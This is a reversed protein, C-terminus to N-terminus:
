IAQRYSKRAYYITGLNNIAEPYKPDLKMSREYYKKAVDMQMMQHYAIGVKNWIVASDQPGQKYTEVAERYMKRAMLIDARNEPSLPTLANPQEPLKFTVLLTQATHGSVAISICFALPFRFWLVSRM